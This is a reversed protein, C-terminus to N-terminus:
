LKLVKICGNHTVSFIWTLSADFIDIDDSGPYWFDDFYNDLDNFSMTDIQDFRYWNIFVEKPIEFGIHSFVEILSFGEAEPDGEDYLYQLSDIRQVLLLGDLQNDIDLKGSLLSRVHRTEAESLSIYKPFSVGHHTKYFNDVKFKDM